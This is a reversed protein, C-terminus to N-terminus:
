LDSSGTDFDLNMSVGGVDVKSLYELDNAESEAVVSSTETGSPSSATASPVQRRELYTPLPIGHKLLAHRRAEAGDFPGAGRDHQRTVTFTQKLPRIPLAEVTWQSLLSLFYITIHTTYM